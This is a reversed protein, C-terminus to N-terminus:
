TFCSGNDCLGAGDGDTDEDLGPLPPQAQAVAEALPQNFRTLWVPDRGLGARRTNLLDELACARAFLDPRDRRMDAWGSPRKLPCFWCASKTPIALGARRIIGVCDSRRLRLDLLPYVVQEYPEVRRNTVRHIEDLSIGASVKAPSTPTAGHAKLWRGIIHIKFDTTCSRTRPAGGSMRVPIPLSRSGPRTLRGHLTETGGDRRVRHLEHLEIGHAKAYPAAVTRVYHLTQPDESDDGTNAFLFRPISLRRQVALVLVATSQVGGYSCTVPGTM